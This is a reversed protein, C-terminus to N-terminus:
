EGLEPLLELAYLFEANPDFAAGRWTMRTIALMPINAPTVKELPMISTALFPINWGLHKIIDSIMTIKKATINVSM